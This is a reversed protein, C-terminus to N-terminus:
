DVLRNVLLLVFTTLSFFVIIVTVIQFVQCLFTLPDFKLSKVVKYYAKLYRIDKM